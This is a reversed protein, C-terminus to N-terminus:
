ICQILHLYQAFYLKENVPM